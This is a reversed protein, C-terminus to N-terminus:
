LNKLVMMDKIGDIFLPELFIINEVSMNSLTEMEILKLLM